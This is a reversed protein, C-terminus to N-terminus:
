VIVIKTYQVMFFRAIRILVQRSHSTELGVVEDDDLGDEAAAEAAAASWLMLKSEKRDQHM